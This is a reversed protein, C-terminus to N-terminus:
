AKKRAKQWKEEKMVFEKAVQQIGDTKWDAGYVLKFGDPHKVRDVLEMLGRLGKAEPHRTYEVTVLGKAAELFIANSPTLLKKVAEHQLAVMTALRTLRLSNHPAGFAFRLIIHRDWKSSARYPTIISQANYGMIGAAYGDVVMLLNGPGPDAKLRHMWLGRYYDAVQAKVPYVDVKSDTTIVHDMPIMPLDLPTIDAASKIGVKPGGTIAFVEDPRNSNIYVNQGLSLHRAFVPTEHASDGPERQQQCLLLAAKGRFMDVLKPIDPHPDFITYEPTAWTLRDKTDFFREFGAKYTPPNISVITNPDDMVQEMHSWMDLPEYKLGGLREKMLHLRTKISALHTEQNRILDDVLMRWYDVDPRAQTRALLQVWLLHAADDVIDEGKLVVAEGDVRVDLEGLDNDACMGGVISTYLSVDSAEMAEPKWGAHEAVMPMAFAGACPEVYRTYQDGNAIEEFVTRCFSREPADWTNLFLIAPSTFGGAM